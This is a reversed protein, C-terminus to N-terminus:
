IEENIESKILELEETSYDESEIKDEEKIDDSPKETLRKTCLLRASESLNIILDCNIPIELGKETRRINDRKTISYHTKCLDKRRAIGGCSKKSCGLYNGNDDVIYFQCDM